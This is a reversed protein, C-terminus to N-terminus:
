RFRRRKRHYFPRKHIQLKARHRRKSPTSARISPCPRGWASAALPVGDVKVTLSASPNNVVVRLRSLKAELAKAHERAFAARDSQGQKEATSAGENFEAWASATKGDSEHCLALNLLTGIQPDYGESALLKPCAETYKGAAMLTKGDRFLTEALSKEQETPAAVAATTSLVLGTAALLSLAYRLGLM